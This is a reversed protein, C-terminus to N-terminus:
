SLLFNTLKWNQYLIYHLQLGIQCVVCVYATTYLELFVSKIALIQDIVIFFLSLIFQLHNASMMHTGLLYLLYCSPM